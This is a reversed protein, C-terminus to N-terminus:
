RTKCTHVFISSLSLVLRRAQHEAVVLLRILITWCGDILSKTQPPLICNFCFPNKTQHELFVFSLVHRRDKQRKQFWEIGWGGNRAKSCSDTSWCLVLLADLWLTLHTGDQKWTANLEKLKECWRQSAGEGREHMRGSASLVGTTARAPRPPTGGLDRGEVAVRLRVRGAGVGVQRLHRARGRHCWRAASVLAGIGVTCAVTGGGRVSAAM